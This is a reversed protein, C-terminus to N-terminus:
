GVVLPNTGLRPVLARFHSQCPRYSTLSLRVMSWFPPLMYSFALTGSSVNVRNGLLLSFRRPTRWHPIQLFGYGFGGDLSPTFRQCTRSFPALYRRSGFGSIRETVEEPLPPPHATVCNDIKGLSPGDIVPGNYSRCRQGLRLLSTVTIPLPDASSATTTTFGYAQSPATVYRLIFSVTLSLSTPPSPRFM